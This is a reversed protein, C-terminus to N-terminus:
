NQDRNRDGEQKNPQRIRKSKTTKSVMTKSMIHKYSFFSKPFYAATSVLGKVTLFLLYSIEMLTEEGDGAHFISPGSSGSTRSVFWRNVFSEQNKLTWHELTGVLANMRMVM